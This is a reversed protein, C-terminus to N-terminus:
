SFTIWLRMIPTTVIIFDFKNNNRWCNWSELLPELQEFVKDMM